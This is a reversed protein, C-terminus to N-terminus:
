GGVAPDEEEVEAADPTPQFLPAPDAATHVIPGTAERPRPDWADWRYPCAGSRLATALPEVAHPAVVECPTTLGDYMDFSRMWPRLAPSFVFTGNEERVLEGSAAWLQMRRALTAELGIKLYMKPMLPPCSRAGCAFGAVAMPMTYMPQVFDNVFRDLRVLDSDLRVWAPPFPAAETPGPEFGEVARWLMQANVVNLAYALRRNDDSNRFKDTEPGHVAVWGVYSRLTTPDARLAAYDVGGDDAVVRDLTQAWAGNPDTEPAPPPEHDPGCGVLLLLLWGGRM